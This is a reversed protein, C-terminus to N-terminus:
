TVSIVGPRIMHGADPVVDAAPATLTANSAGFQIAIATLQTLYLTQGPQMSNLLATIEGSILDPNIGNGTITMTVDTADITPALVQLQSHTVPRVDDIYAKVADLLTQNPIENGTTAANALIIVDVTGDGQALPFCYAAAVNDVEKAWREYDYKNGGAPPRRIVELLRALLAADTEGTTPDVGRVWAHHRLNESTATDPFMQKAIHDQYQYIGWLASALCASRIFVLSGQATDVDPFQNRYDTLIGDLLEEFGKSFNM